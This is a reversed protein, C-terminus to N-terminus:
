NQVDPTSEETVVHNWQPQKGGMRQEREAPLQGRATNGHLLYGCGWTAESSEPNLKWSSIAGLSYAPTNMLCASTVFM